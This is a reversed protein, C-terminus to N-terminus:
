IQNELLKSRIPLKFVFTAGSGEESEAWIDGGHKNVIIDYSISLGLGTGKGVDKTTFFPEFIKNLYIRKIGPGDDKISCYVFDSDEWTKIWIHSKQTRNPQSKIAQAANILINLIVQGIEGRNCYIQRIEGYEKIVEIDYKLENRAILLTEEIIDNLDEYSAQGDLGSRAFRKLSQVIHSVRRLGDMTEDLLQDIDEVMFDFKLQKKLESIRKCNEIVGEMDIQNDSCISKSVKDYEEIIKKFKEIYKGLTEINTIVFGLPNNIEHAIGAALQGIASMKENQILVDQTEKLKKTLEILEKNKEQLDNLASKYLYQYNRLRVAARLRYTLEVQNIPKRIFDNAGLSFSEKIVEDDDLSTMVIVYVDGYEKIRRVFKLVDFGSIGPLVIDLFVIDIDNKDILEIAKEGTDVMWIEWNMEMSNIIENIQRCILPSDDVILIRM